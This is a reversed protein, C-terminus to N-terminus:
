LTLASEQQVPLPFNIEKLKKVYREDADSVEFAQGSLMNRIRLSSVGAGCGVELIRDNKDLFSVIEDIKSFFNDFLYQVIRNQNKYEKICHDFLEDATATTENFNTM